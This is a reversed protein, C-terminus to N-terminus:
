RNSFDSYLEEDNTSMLIHQAKAFVSLVLAVDADNLWQDETMPPEVILKALLKRKYALSEEREEPTMEKMTLDQLEWNILSTSEKETLRRAKFIWDVEELQGTEPNYETLPVPIEVLRKKRNTILDITAIVRKVKREEHEARKEAVNRSSEDFEKKLDEIVAEHSGGEGGLIPQNTLGEAKASEEIERMVKEQESEASEFEIVEYNELGEPLNEESEIPKADKQMTEESKKKDFAEDADLNDINYYDSM